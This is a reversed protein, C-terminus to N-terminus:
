SWGMLDRVQERSETRAEATVKAGADDLRKRARARRERDPGSDPGSEAAGGAGPDIETM